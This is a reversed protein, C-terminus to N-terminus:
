RATEQPCMRDGSGIMYLQPKFARGLGIVGGERSASKPSARIAASHIAIFTAKGRSRRRAGRPSPEGTM